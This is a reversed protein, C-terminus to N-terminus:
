YKKPHFNQCSCAYRGLEVLLLFFVRQSQGSPWSAGEGENAPGGKVPSFRFIELATFNFFWGKSFLTMYPRSSVCGLTEVVETGSSALWSSM